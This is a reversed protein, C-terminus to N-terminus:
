PLSPAPAPTVDAEALGGQLQGPEAVPAAAPAVQEGLAAEKLKTAVGSTALLNEEKKGQGRKLECRAPSAGYADVFSWAKCSMEDDCAAECALASTADTVSYTAGFRYTNREHGAPLAAPELAAKNGTAELPAIPPVSMTKGEKGDAHASAALGICAAAIMLALRM